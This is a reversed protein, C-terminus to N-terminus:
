KKEKFSWGWRARTADDTFPSAWAHGNYGVLTIKEVNVRVLDFVDKRRTQPDRSINRISNALNYERCSSQDDLCSDSEQSSIGKTLKVTEKVNKNASHM